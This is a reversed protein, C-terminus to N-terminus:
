RKLGNRELQWHLYDIHGQGFFPQKNHVFLPVGSHKAAAQALHDGQNWGAAGGFILRSVEKAFGISAGRREAEEGLWLLRCIYPREGPCPGSRSIRSM